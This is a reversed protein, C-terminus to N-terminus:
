VKKRAAKRRAKRQLANVEREHRAALAQLQNIAIGLICCAAEDRHIVYHRKLDWLADVAIELLGHVDAAGVWAPSPTFPVPSGDDTPQLGEREAWDVYGTAPASVPREAPGSEGQAMTAVAEDTDGGPTVGLVMQKM